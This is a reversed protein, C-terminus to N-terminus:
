TEISRKKRVHDIALTKHCAQTPTDCTPPERSTCRNSCKTVDLESSNSSSLTQDLCAAERKVMNLLLQSSELIKMYASETEQITREYDVRAASKKGLSENLQSIKSSMREVEHQLRSKESEEAEIQAELGSKTTKLEEICQILEQNFAQMTDECRIVLEFKSTRLSTIGNYYM